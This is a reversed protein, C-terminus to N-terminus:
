TRNCNEIWQQTKSVGWTCDKVQMVVRKGKKSFFAKHKHFKSYFKIVKRMKSFFTIEKPQV